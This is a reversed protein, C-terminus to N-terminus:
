KLKEKIDGYIKKVIENESLSNPLVSKLFEVTVNGRKPFLRTYPMSEYAGNIAVPVVPVNLSVAIAAFTNKFKQIKGDRSRTGEPFIVIKKGNKLIQAIKQLSTILDKNIDM